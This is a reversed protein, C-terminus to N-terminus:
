IDEERLQAPHDDGLAARLQRRARFVRTMVAQPTLGLMAGIEECSFGGIVQLVLPERYEEALQQLARRLAWAEPRNDVEVHHSAVFDLGDENGEPRQREYIRAHERRLTTALWARAAGGDRLSDLSRWARAFTEQVLDEALSPKRCLWYAYRYLDASYERVLRTFLVDRAEDRGSSVSPGDSQKRM